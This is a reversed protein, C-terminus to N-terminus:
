RSLSLQTKCHIGRYEIYFIVKVIFRNNSANNANEPSFSVNIVLAGLKVESKLIFLGKIVNFGKEKYKSLSM